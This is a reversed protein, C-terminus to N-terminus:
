ALIVIRGEVSPDARNMKIGVAYMPLREGYRRFFDFSTEHEGIGARRPLRSNVIPLDELGVDVSVLAHEAIKLSDGFNGAGHVRGYRASIPVFHRAQKTFFPLHPAGI